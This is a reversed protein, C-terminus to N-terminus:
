IADSISCASAASNVRAVRAASLASVGTCYFLGRTTAFCLHFHVTLPGSMFGPFRSILDARSHRKRFSGGVILGDDPCGGVSSGTFRIGMSVSVTRTAHGPFSCRRASESAATGGRGDELGSHPQYRSDRSLAEQEAAGTPEHIGEPIHSGSGCWLWPSCIIEPTLSLRRAM